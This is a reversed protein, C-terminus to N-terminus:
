KSGLSVSLWCLSKYLNYTCNNTMNWFVLELLLFTPLNRPPWYALLPLGQRKKRKMEPDLKTPGGQLGISTCMQPQCHMVFWSRVWILNILSLSKNFLRTWCPNIQTSVSWSICLNQACIEGAWDPIEQTQGDAEHRGRRRHLPAARADFAGVPGSDRPRGRAESQRNPLPDQLNSQM